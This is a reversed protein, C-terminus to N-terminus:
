EEDRIQNKTKNLVWNFRIIFFILITFMNFVLGWFFVLDYIFLITLLLIAYNIYTAWVLSELRIKAIFEDELKEKSFAILLAGIIIFIGAIEDLINNESSTFFVTDNFIAEEVISFVKVDFFGIDSPSMLFVIGLLVGPIFLVM